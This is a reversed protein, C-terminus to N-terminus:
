AATVTPTSQRSCRIADPLCPKRRSIQRSRHKRRQKRRLKRRLKERRGSCLSCIRNKNNQRQQRRQRLQRRQQQQQKTRALVSDDQQKTWFQITALLQLARTSTEWQYSWRILTVTARPLTIRAKMTCLTQPSSM